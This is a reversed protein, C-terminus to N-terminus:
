KVTIVVGTNNDFIKIKTSESSHLTKLTKAANAIEKQDNSDFSMGIITDKIDNSAYGFLNVSQTIILKYRM